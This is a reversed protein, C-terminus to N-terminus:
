SENGSPLRGSLTACHVSASPVVVGGAHLREHVRQDCRVEMHLEFVDRLLGAPFVRVPVAENRQFARVTSCNDTATAELMIALQAVTACEISSFDLRQNAKHLAGLCRTLEPARRRLVLLCRSDRNEDSEEMTLAGCASRGRRGSSSDM